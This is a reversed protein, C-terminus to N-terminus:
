AHRAAGPWERCMAVDVSDIWASVLDMAGGKFALRAVDPDAGEMEAAMTLAETSWGDFVAADAIAPGLIVRLEDLTADSPDINPLPQTIPAPASAM